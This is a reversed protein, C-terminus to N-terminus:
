GTKRGVIFQTLNRFYRPGDGHPWMTAMVAAKAEERREPQLHSTTVGAMVDWASAFSDFEFGLAETDVSASIGAGALQALFPAADALAGPGVGPVPPTPAFRAATTQFLVLDCREPGAWVAAVFRGGPRLVRAIERAAVARDIVYMLSLSALVVDFAGDDAPITEGRGESFRVNDLGSATARHRAAALMERSIDVGLVSGSSGVLAGARMAVSGTGTGLDLVCDRPRVAARAVVHEIVPAFRTDVERSYIEPYRDWIERQWALGEDDNRASREAGGTSMDVEGGHPWLGSTRILRPRLGDAPRRDPMRGTLSEKYGGSGGEDVVVV